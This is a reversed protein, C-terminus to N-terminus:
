PEKRYRWWIWKLCSIPCRFTINWQKSSTQELCQFFVYPEPHYSSRGLSGLRNKWPPEIVLCDKKMLRSLNYLFETIRTPLLYTILSIMGYNSQWQRLKPWPFIPSDDWIIFGSWRDTSATIRGSRFRRVDCGAGCAGTLHIRRM